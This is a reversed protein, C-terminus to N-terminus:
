IKVNAIVGVSLGFGFAVLISVPELPMIPLIMFASAATILGLRLPMWRYVYRHITIIEIKLREAESLRQWDKRHLAAV